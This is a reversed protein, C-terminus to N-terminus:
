ILVSGRPREDQWMHRFRPVEWRDPDRRRRQFFEEIENAPLGRSMMLAQSWTTWYNELFAAAAIVGRRVAHPPEGQSERLMDDFWYPAFARNSIVTPQLGILALASVGPISVTVDTM